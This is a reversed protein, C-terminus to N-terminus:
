GATKRRLHLLVGEDVRELENVTGSLGVSRGDDPALANDDTQLAM